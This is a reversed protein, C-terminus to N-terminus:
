PESMVQAVLTQEAAQRADDLCTVVDFSTYRESFILSRLADGENRFADWRVLDAAMQEVLAQRRTRPDSYLSGDILPIVTATM